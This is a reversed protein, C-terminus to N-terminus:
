RMYAPGPGAGSFAHRTATPNLVIFASESFFFLHLFFLSLYQGRESESPNAHDDDPPDLNLPIFSGDLIIPEENLM